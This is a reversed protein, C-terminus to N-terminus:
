LNNEKTYENIMDEIKLLEELYENDYKNLIEREEKSIIKKNVYIVDLERKKREIFNFKKCIIDLM